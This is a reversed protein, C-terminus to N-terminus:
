GDRREQEQRLGRSEEFADPRERDTMHALDSVFVWNSIRRRTAPGIGSIEELDELAEFPRVGRADLIAQARVPGIGPIAELLIRPATNLDIPRGTLLRGMGALERSQERSQVAADSDASVNEVCRIVRSGFADETLSEWHACVEPSGRELLEDAVSVGIRDAVSLSARPLRECIAEFSCVAWLGTALLLALLARSQPGRIEAGSSGGSDRGNSASALEAANELRAARASWDGLIQRALDGRASVRGERAPSSFEGSASEGLSPGALEIALYESGLVGPFRNAWEVAVVAGRGILDYFGISELEDASELRYLDVHHLVEPGKPLPYEQAIVFTPSSVAQADLGLGEALGKVFLTKGAGLPGDLTIALGEIGIAAGLERGLAFTTEPDPSAFRWSEM